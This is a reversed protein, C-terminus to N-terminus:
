PQKGLYALYAVVAKIEDDNLKVGSMLEVAGLATRVRAEDAGRNAPAGVGAPGNGKGDLGHCSACGVGGATKEFIVKGRDLLPDTGGPSTSGTAAATTPPNAASTGSNAATASAGAVAAAPQAPKQVTASAGGSCAVTMAIAAAAVLPMLCVHRKQLM